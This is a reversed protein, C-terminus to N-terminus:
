CELSSSLVAVGSPTDFTGGEDRGVRMGSGTRCREAADVCRANVGHNELM